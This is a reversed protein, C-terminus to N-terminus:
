VSRRQAAATIRPHVLLNNQVQIIRVDVYSFGVCFHVWRGNRLFFDQNIQAYHSAPLVSLIKMCIQWGGRHGKRFWTIQPMKGGSWAVHCCKTMNVTASEDRNCVIREWM